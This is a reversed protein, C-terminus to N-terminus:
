KASSVNFDMCASMNGVLPVRVTYDAGIVVRDGDKTIELDKGQLVTINEVVARRDFANEIAKRQGTSAEPDNVIIKVQRQITYYDVYAPGVKFGFLAVFVLIVAGVLFALMSLGEQRRM